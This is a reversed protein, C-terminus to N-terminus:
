VLSPNSYKINPIQLKTPLAAAMTPTVHARDWVWSDFGRCLADYATATGVLDVIGRPIDDNDNVSLGL